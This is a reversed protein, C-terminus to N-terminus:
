YAVEKEYEIRGFITVVEFKVGIVGRKTTDFEFNDVSEIRDDVILANTIRNELESCVYSKPKGFLDTFEVGYNWSYINYKYRETSLVKFIFQKIADKEDVYGQITERIPNMKYNKSPGIEVSIINNLTSNTSPIM